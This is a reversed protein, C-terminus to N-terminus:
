LSQVSQKIAHALEPAASIVEIKDIRKEEPLVITDAVIIKTLDSKELRTIAPGSLVPHTAGLYIDLAGAEKLATAVGCVTGATNIEDDIMIVNKGSVDGDVSKISVTDHTPRYKEARVLSVGIREAIASSDEISGADPAVVCFDEPIDIQSKFHQALSDWLEVNVFPVDFFTEIVPAHINCVIVSLVGVSELLRAVVDAAIAEGEAVKREQRRYPYFPFVAIITEANQRRAADILLLMEVLHDNVPHSGSQVVCVTKQDLNDDINVYTEGDSFTKIDRKVLPVTLQSAISAALPENSSGSLIVTNKM